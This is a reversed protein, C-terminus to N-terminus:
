SSASWGEGQGLNGNAVLSGQHGGVRGMHPQGAGVLGAEEHPEGLHQGAVPEIHLVDLYPGAPHVVHSDGWQM